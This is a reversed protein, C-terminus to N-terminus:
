LIEKQEMTFFKCCAFRNRLYKWIFSTILYSLGATEDPKKKEALGFM